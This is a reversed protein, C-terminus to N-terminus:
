HSLMYVAGYANFLVALACLLWEWDKPAAGEKARGAEGLLVFPILDVLYRAGFQWGGLTRHLCLALLGAAFGALALGDWLGFSRRRMRGALRVFWWLFVPNAAVFLFGNFVPFQLDLGATFGIPRLLQLLNPLLYALHFQGNEERQFEPLWTHGFELPNGFRAANYAALAAGVLAAAAFPLWFGRGPKQLQLCLENPPPQPGKLVIYEVRRTGHRVLLVLMYAALVLISFPRCGVALAMCFAAATSGATTDAAAFWLGWALLAFNLTQALFWVGGNTALWCLNSGATCVAAWWVCAAPAFGRRAFLGYVGVAGALGALAAVLHSPVAAAGGCLVVWPLVFLGPVPPFSIYYRGNYIALELWPRSAGDPLHLNGQLWNHALLAYSDYPSHELLTGGALSHYLLIGALYTLIFFCLPRVYARKHLTM